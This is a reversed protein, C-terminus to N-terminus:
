NDTVNFSQLMTIFETDNKLDSYTAAKGSSNKLTVSIDKAIPYFFLNQCVGVNSKGETLARHAASRKDYNPELSLTQPLGSSAPTQYETFVYAPNKTTIKKVLTYTLTDEDCSGGVSDRTYMEVTNGMPSKIITKKTDNQDTETSVTWSAPHTFSITGNADNPSDTTTLSTTTTAANSTGSSSNEKSNSTNPTSTNPTNSSQTNPQLVLFYVAVGAAILVVAALAAILPWKSKGPTPSMPPTQLPAGNPEVLNPAGPTGNTPQTPQNSPPM